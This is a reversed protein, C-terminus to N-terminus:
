ILEKQYTAFYSGDTNICRVVDANNEFLVFSLHEIYERDCNGTNIILIDCQNVPWNYNSPIHLPPLVLTRTPRVLSSDAGEKWANKGIYLYVSNSPRSGNKILEVLPLSYPPFKKHM